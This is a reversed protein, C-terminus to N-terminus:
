TGVLRPLVEVARERIVAEALDDCPTPELNVIVVRAGAAHAMPVLGGAPQVLLSSGVVLMLDARRTEEVARELPDAPMVEGFLVTEPKLVGGCRECRPDEDGARVRDAVLRLPVARRCLLCRAEEANGHLEIVRRSGARQHLRDINQTILSALRGSRELTTLAAHAANPRAADILAGLELGWRWFRRRAESRRTFQEFSFEEPDFRSWVGDPGRFDPIGSDTSVGAGTLAVIRRAREVLRAAAAIADM